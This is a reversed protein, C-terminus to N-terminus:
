TFDIIQPQVFLITDTEAYGAVLGKTGATAAPEGATDSGYVLAGKTAGTLCEIPGHTVGDIVDGVVGGQVAVRVTLQAAGTDTPDWFGDSQETILEGAAVTAGLTTRRVLADPLPKVKEATTQRAIAM